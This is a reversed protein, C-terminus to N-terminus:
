REVTVSGGVAGGCAKAVDDPITEGDSSGAGDASPDSVDYGKERLCEATERMAAEAEENSKEEAASQPRPGLDANTEEQCKEMAASTVEPDAGMPIAGKTLGDATPDQVDLGEGRLCGANAVDWALADDAVQSDSKVQPSAGGEGGSCGALGVVLLPVAALAFLTPRLRTSITM